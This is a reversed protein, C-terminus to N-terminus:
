HECLSFEREFLHASNEDIFYKREKMLKKRHKKAEKLTMPSGSSYSVINQIIEKPMRFFEPVHRMLADAYWSQQQPPVIETSIIRKSPDVLFFVLIKRIGPKSKDALEFPQVKHQYINPFVICRDGQTVVGGLNENLQDGNDYGWYHAVYGHETGDEDYNSDIPPSCGRRFSLVSETINESQYYYIGSAVINENQMGEVHWSGGEYYANDPKLVINALKVIVQLQRGELHVAGKKSFKPGKFDSPISVPKYDPEWDDDDDNEPRRQIEPATFREPQNPVGMAVETLSKNFLPVFKEFIRGITGYLARHKIPHLNNIYSDISVRGDKGVSFEAPLWSYYNSLSYSEAPREELDFFEPKGKPRKAPPEDTAMEVITGGGMEKLSSSSTTKGHRLVRTSGYVLPFLSPHVLDLVQSTGPHWDLEDAPVNELESVGARLENNLDEAVINDAQWVAPISTRHYVGDSRSSLYDLETQMFAWVDSELPPLTEQQQWEHQPKPSMSAMQSDIEKQWKQWIRPDKRKADWNPKRAILNLVQVYTRELKTVARPSDPPLFLFHDTHLRNDVNQTFIGAFM